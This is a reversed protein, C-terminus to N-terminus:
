SATEPAVPVHATRGNRRGGANVNCPVTSTRHATIPLVINQKKELGALLLLHLVQISREVM